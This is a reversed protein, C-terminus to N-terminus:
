NLEIHLKYREGEFAACKVYRRPKLRINYFKSTDHIIYRRSKNM